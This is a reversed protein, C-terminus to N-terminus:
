HILFDIICFVSIIFIIAISKSCLVNLDSTDYRGLSPLRVVFQNSRAFGSGKKAVAKLLNISM